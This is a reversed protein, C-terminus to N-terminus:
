VKKNNQTERMKEAQLELRAQLTTINKRLTENDQELKMKDIVFKEKDHQWQQFLQQWRQNNIKLKEIEHHLEEITTRYKSESEDTKQLAQSSMRQWLSKMAVILEEPIGQSLALVKTDSQTRRWDRLHAAITSNSGTKLINRVHEITPDSGSAVLQNAANFVAQKSIGPRAM